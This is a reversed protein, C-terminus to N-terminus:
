NAGPERGDNRWDQPWQRDLNSARIRALARFLAWIGWTAGSNGASRAGGQRTHTGLNEQTEAGGPIRTTLHRRGDDHGTRAHRPGHDQTRGNKGRTEGRGPRPIPYTMHMCGAAQGSGSGNIAAASAALYEPRPRQRHLDEVLQALPQLILLEPVPRAPRRRPQRQYRYQLPVLVQGVPRQGLRRHIRERTRNMLIAM